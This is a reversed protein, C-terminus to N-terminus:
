RRARRTASALLADVAAPSLQSLDLFPPTRLASRVRGFPDIGEIHSIRALGDGGRQRVVQGRLVTRGPISNVMRILDGAGPAGRVVEVLGGGTSAYTIMDGDTDRYSLRSARALTTAFTGGAVGDADGDLLNGTIDKLGGPEGNLRISVFEGAPVPVALTLAVITGDASQEVGAIPVARDDATGLLGDRGLAVATYNATSLTTAPDMAKSFNIAVVSTAAGPSVSRVDLVLPTVPDPDDNRISVIVGAPDGIVSNEDPYGLFVAFGRDGDFVANDLIPIDITKQTEGPAFTVRTALPQYDVGPVADGGFTAVSIESTALTGGTRNITLRVVGASEEVDVLRSSFQFVSQPPTEDDTITLTAQTIPGAGAGAGIGLQLNVTQPGEFTGTDILPIDFTKETEGEGFTLTGSTPQYRVGPQASGPTTAYSVTASGSGDTRTVRITAKGDAENATYDAMSFQFFGAPPTEDDIITVTTTSPQGPAAGTGNGLSVTFSRNGDRQSNDIIPVTITKELEGSGFTLTGSTSVFDAGAVASGSATTYPISVVGATGGSRRVVISAQGGNEQVSVNAASFSLFQPQAPVPDDDYITLTARSPVGVLATGSPDDTRRANSLILNVTRNPDITDNDLIPITFTKTRENNGFSLTGSTAQYNTGATASGDTTTYDVDVTGVLSNSREVEITALGGAESVSFDRIRFSVISTDPSLTVQTDATARDNQTNPDAIGGTVSFTSQVIGAQSPIVPLTVTLRQGGTLLGLDAILLTPDNPDQTFNPPLPTVPSVSQPLRVQLEAPGSPNSFNLNAITVEYTLVQGAEVPDPSDKVELIALDVRGSRLEIPQAPSFESTNGQPDTATATLFANATLLRSPTDTFSAFGNADTSVQRIFLPQEGEGFGSADAGSSEYYEITYSTNPAARLTGSITSSPQGNLPEIRVAQTIIPFNQLRNPGSDSDPVPDNPTVGDNGLDIGLGGNFAIANYVIRNNIAPNNVAIITIGNFSTDRGNFYITNSRTPDGGIVNGSSSQILVGHGENGLDTVGDTGVGIFNSELRNNGAGVISVGNGSFRNIALGRITSGSAGGTIVLGDGAGTQTGTGGAIEVLPRGPQFGPQTTGDITLPDTIAPLQSAMTITTQGGPLNFAITDLGANNNAALIAARLTGTGPNNNDGTDANSTVTFTALLAKRELSEVTPRHKSPRYRDGARRGLPLSSM